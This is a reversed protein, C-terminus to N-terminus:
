MGARRAVLTSGSAASRYSYYSFSPLLNWTWRRNVKSVHIALRVCTSISAASPNPYFGIMLKHSFRQGTAGTSGWCKM